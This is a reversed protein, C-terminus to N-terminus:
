YNGILRLNGELDWILCGPSLGSCCSKCTIRLHHRQVLRYYAELDRLDEIDLQDILEDNRRYLAQLDSGWLEETLEPDGERCLRDIDYSDFRPTKPPWPGPFLQPSSHSIRRFILIWIVVKTASEGRSGLSSPKRASTRYLITNEMGLSIFSTSKWFTSEWCIWHGNLLKHAVNEQPLGAVFNSVPTRVCIM